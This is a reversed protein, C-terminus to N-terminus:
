GGQEGTYFQAQAKWLEAYKGGEESLLEEHGGTQVIQGHDFVAIKDCFRCSALRHSIYVTTKDGSIANFNSYVEYESVPDLAATPEDLLIFPSDKYLARALAIKQGEGGSFEVGDKDFQKGIFTDAGHPLTELRTDFTAKELCERVRGPEFDRKSAVVEGLRFPFLTFDQFVVSFISMYEDYDYKQINVGNLLIEGETPDYLRCLLKIFTTKGSGNEGVIALKEGIKFKLSVHRLAWAETGPYRFSVDRFEVDYENDDRKEVTLSGKVMDNPIDFYSFYRKLYHHNEFSQEFATTLETVAGIMMTICAVYKAISGPTIGGNLASLMMIAYGAFLLLYSVVTGPVSWAAKLYSAKRMGEYLLAQKEQYEDAVLDEMEYLRIDKSGSYDEMFEGLADAYVNVDVYSEESRVKRDIALQRKTSLLSVTISLALGFVLLLKQWLPISPLAFFSATLAASSLISVTSRAFRRVMYIAHYVNYGTRSEMKVRAKQREIEPDELAKYPLEMAKESYMWDQRIYSLYSETSEVAGCWACIMSILFVPLVALAAYLILTEVREHSILADVLKASFYVPIYGSVATLITTVFMCVIYRPNLTYLLRVARKSIAFHERLSMREKQGNM